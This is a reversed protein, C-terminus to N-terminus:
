AVVAELKRTSFFDEFKAQNFPLGLVRTIHRVDYEANGMCMTAGPSPTMNVILNGDATKTEGHILTETDGDIIVKAEGLLLKKGHPARTDIIQPRVGGVGEAFEIQSAKIAPVVKRISPAFTYRSLGFPLQYLFNKGMFATKEVDTLIDVLSALASLGGFSKRWDKATKKDFKDLRSVFRATPGWRTMGTEQLDPDGHVAAFPINPNQITYVKGNLVKRTRFFDGAIPAVSLYQCHNMQKALYLSHAGASIILARTELEPHQPNNTKIAYGDKIQSIGLVKTGTYVNVTKGQARGERVATEVCSQAFRGYDVAFENRARYIAAVKQKPNRGRMVNPEVQAIGNGDLFQLDPFLGQMQAYRAQLKAIEKEGVALLMKPFEQVIGDLGYQKAHAVVMDASHSDHVVMEYSHQTEWGRHLTNANMWVASNVEGLNLRSELLAMSRIGTFKAALDLEAAGTVGGGIILLEYREVM